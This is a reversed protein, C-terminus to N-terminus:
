EYAQLLTIAGPVSPLWQLRGSDGTHRLMAAVIGVSVISGAVLGVVLRTLFRWDRIRRHFASSMAFITFHGLSLSPPWSVRQHCGRHGEYASCRADNPPLQSM